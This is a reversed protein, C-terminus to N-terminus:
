GQPLRGGRRRLWIQLGYRVVLGIVILLAFTLGGTVTFPANRPGLNVDAVLLATEGRDGQVAVREAVSGDANVIVSDWAIDAKVLPVRNEVARFVVSQWRLNTIFAPDLAPVAMIQAGALTDLRTTSDPFDHDFCIELGLRGFPTPYTPYEQPTEFTEGEIMVPHIKYYAPGAVTGDPLWVAAMNPTSRSPYDPEFGTVITTATRRALRGIWAGRETRPDYNLTLEPWVVLQAGQAAAEETMSVLQRRLAQNRAANEAPSALRFWGDPGDALRTHQVGTQLAAVRITPGLQSTVQWHIVLSLGLWVAALGATVIMSRRLTRSAVTVTTLRPWRRDMWAIVLLAVAANGMLLLFSLAPTSFVSVPQVLAPAAATRYALWYNTALIPNSQFIVEVGVWILPLQVVFWRYGTREAFPREFIGIVWWVAAFGTILLLVVAPGAASLVLVCLGSWYGGAAIALAMASWRSPLLRYQAVYMPVFAVMVLPWLSGHGDWTVFLAVASVLSLALGLVIRAANGGAGTPTTDPDTPTGSAQSELVAM